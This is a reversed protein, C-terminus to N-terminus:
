EESRFRHWQAPLTGRPGLVPSPAVAKEPFTRVFWDAVAQIVKDWHYRVAIRRAATQRHEDPVQFYTAM